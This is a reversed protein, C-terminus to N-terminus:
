KQVYVRQLRCHFPIQLISKKCFASKGIKKGQYVSGDQPSRKCVCMQAFAM